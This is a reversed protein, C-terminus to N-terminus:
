AGSLMAGSPPGGGFWQEALESTRRRVRAIGLETNFAAFHPWQFVFIALETAVLARQFTRREYPRNDLYTDVLARPVTVGAPTARVSVFALDLVARGIGAAQWDCFVLSGEAHVLNDTHCDGHIFVPPLTSACDELEARRSVLGALRPLTPSWFAGVEALNPSALSEHLPDPRTWDAGSPVRMSHLAALERGLEAWMGPTWSEAKWPEGAAALLVAVGDETDMSDLLEPTRVPAESALNQYFRLERRADTVAQRGLAAPTVKLYAARGAATRVARVGAGSKSELREETGRVTLQLAVLAVAMLDTSM